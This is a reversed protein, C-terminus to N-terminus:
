AAEQSWLDPRLERRSVGTAKEIAVAAEAPVRGGHLRLWRSINPQSHGTLRALASQSGAIEIARALPLPKPM